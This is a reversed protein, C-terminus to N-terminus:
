SRPIRAKKRDTVNWAAEFPGSCADIGTKSLAQTPCKICLEPMKAYEGSAVRWTEHLVFCRAYLCRVAQHRWQVRVGCTSRLM